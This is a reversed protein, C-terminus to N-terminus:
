KIAKAPTPLSEAIGWIRHLLPQQKGNKDKGSWSESFQEWDFILKGTNVVPEDWFQNWGEVTNDWSDKLYQGPNELAKNWSHKIDEWGITERLYDGPRNWLGKISPSIFSSVRRNAPKTQYLPIG